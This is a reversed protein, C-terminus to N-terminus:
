LCVSTAPLGQSYHRDLKKGGGSEGGLADVGDEPLVSKCRDGVAATRGDSRRSGSVFGHCSSPARALCTVPGM